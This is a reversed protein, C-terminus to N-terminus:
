TSSVPIIVIYFLDRWMSEIIVPTWFLPNMKLEATEQGDDSWKGKKQKQRKDTRILRITKQLTSDIYLAAFRRNGLFTKEAASWDGVWVRHWNQHSINYKILIKQVNVPAKYNASDSAAKM